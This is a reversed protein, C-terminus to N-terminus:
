IVEIKAGLKEALDQKLRNDMNNDFDYDILNTGSIEFHVGSLIAQGKGAKCCIIAPPEHPLDCYTAIIDIDQTDSVKFYCGGWYLTPLHKGQINIKTVAASELTQDYPKKTIDPLCGIATGSCFALEREECIAHPSDKQFEISACGYYGGACIGLYTGGQEVYHQIADNGAGNLKKAYPRDAGGPMVFLDITKPIGNKIIQEASILEINDASFYSRASYLSFDGAGEDSYIFIKKM